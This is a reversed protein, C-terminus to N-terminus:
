SFAQGKDVYPANPATIAIDALALTPLAMVAIGDPTFGTRFTAYNAADARRYRIDAQVQVTDDILRQPLQVPESVLENRGPQLVRVATDLPLRLSFQTGTLLLSSAGVDVLLSDSGGLELDFHIPVPVGAAVQRPSLSGPVYRMEAPPLVLLSDIILSDQAYLVPGATFRLSVSVTYRGSDAVFGEIGGFAVTDGTVTTTGSFGHPLLEVPPEGDGRSLQISLSVNEPAASLGPARFALAVDFPVGAYVIRPQFSDDIYVLEGREVLTDTITAEASVCGDFVNVVFTYVGATDPTYTLLGSLSDIRGPGSVLSYILQDNDPDSASVAVQRCDPEACLEGSFGQQAIVPPQNLEVTVTLSCTDALGEADVAIVRIFNDGAVPTLCVEGDILDGGLVRIHELNDDPDTIDFGPLCIEGLDCVKLTTDGPCVVVPPRNGPTEFTVGIVMDNYDREEHKKPDDDLADDSSIQDDVFILYDFDGTFNFSETGTLFHYNAGSGNFVRVDYALFWQHERGEEGVSLKRESFLLADDPDITGDGNVDRRLWLGVVAGSDVTSLTMAGVSDPGAFVASRALGRGPDTYFGFENLDKWPTVEALFQWKQRANHMVLLLDDKDGALPQLPAGNVTLRPKHPKGTAWTSLRLDGPDRSEPGDAWAM